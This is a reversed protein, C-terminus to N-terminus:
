RDELRPPVPVERYVRPLQERREREVREAQIELHGITAIVIGLGIAVLAVLKSGLSRRATYAILAALGNLGVMTWGVLVVGAPQNIFLFWLALHCVNAILLIIM